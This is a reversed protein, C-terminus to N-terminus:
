PNAHRDRIVFRAPSLILRHELDLAAPEMLLRSVLDEACLRAHTAGRSGFATCLHLGPQFATVGSVRNVGDLSDWGPVQGIIPLRDRSVARIGVHPIATQEDFEILKRAQKLLDATENPNVTSGDTRAYTGSIISRGGSTPFITVQDNIVAHIQQTEVSVAQGRVARVQLRKDLLARSFGTALVLHNASALTERGAKCQWVGDKYLIDTVRKSICPTHIAARLEDVGLWGAETFHIDGDAQERILEDPFDAAIQKLRERENPNRGRWILGTPHYGPSDQMFRSALLSFRYRAEPAVALQPFSALQPISSAGGIGSDIIRHNVGRRTLAEACYLGAIGGGLITVTESSHPAPQWDGPRVAALMEQKRGFGPALTVQFGSRGLGRRVDGAATYTAVRAGPRSRAFMKRFIAERWMDANKAPAFGDLFWIDADASLNALAREVDNLILLLRVNPALWIVHQGRYPHPYHALLAKTHTFNHQRLYKELTARNQPHREISVFNLQAEAPQSLWAEAALLCNIGFGFGLECVTFQTHGALNGVMENLPSIFVNQKEEIAAGQQWYIDDYTNSVPANDAWRIDAHELLYSTNM